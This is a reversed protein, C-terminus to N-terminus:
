QVVFRSITEIAETVRPGPRSIIDQDIVLVKKNQVAAIKEWRKDRALEDVSVTGKPVIICDPNIMMIKELSIQPYAGKVERAINEVGANALIDDIFTGAGAVVLPNYGVIVIVRPVKLVNALGRPRRWQYRRIKWRMRQAVARARWEQGTTRGIELISNLVAEVSVPNIILVALGYQKLREIEKKQASADMVVLDPKLSVIKELNLFFGGIKAKKQAAPPYNCNTTVGVIRGGLNLAYLMETIAPMASVIRQPNNEIAATSPLGILM